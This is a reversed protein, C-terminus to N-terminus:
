TQRRRILRALETFGVPDRRRAGELIEEDLGERGLGHAAMPGCLLVLQIARGREMRNLARVAGGLDRDLVMAFVERDTAQPGTGMLERIRDAEPGRGMMELLQVGVARAERLEERHSDDGRGHYYMCAEIVATLGEDLREGADVSAWALAVFAAALDAWRDPYVTSLRRRLGIVEAYLPLAAATDASRRVHGLLSFAEALPALYQIRQEGLARYMTIAQQLDSEAEALRGAQWHARGRMLLVEAYAPGCRPDSDYLDQWMPVAEGARFAADLHSGRKLYRAALDSLSAALEAVPVADSAALTRLLRTAYQRAAFAERDSDLGDFVSCLTQYCRAVALDYGFYAERRLRLWIRLAEQLSKLADSWRHLECQATGLQAMSAALEARRTMADRRALERRLDVAHAYADAAEQHYGPQLLRAGLRDYLAAREQSDRTRRLLEGILRRAIVAAGVEDAGDGALQTDLSRLLDVGIAPLGALTELTAGTADRVIEPRNRLLPFLESEALEPRAAAADVLDAFALDAPKAAAIEPAVAALAAQHIALVSALADLGDPFSIEGDQRQGLVDAFRGYAQLFLLEREATRIALPELRLRTCPVGATQQMRAALTRWWGGATRSILLFRTAAPAYLRADTLLDLLVGTPWRDARDVIVLHGARDALSPLQPSDVAESVHWGDATSLEALRDALRTKGEGAPAYLLLVRAGTGDRWGTLERLEGHRGTFGAIRHRPDLLRDARPDPTGSPRQWPRVGPRGSARGAGAPSRSEGIGM